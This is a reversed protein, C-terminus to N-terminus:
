RERSWPMIMAESPLASPPSTSRSAKAPGCSARASRGTMPMSRKEPPPQPAPRIRSRVNPAGAGPRAPTSTSSATSHAPPSVTPPSRPLISGRAGRIEARSTRTSRGRMQPPRVVRFRGGVIRTPQLVVITSLTGRVVLAAPVRVPALPPCDLAQVEGAREGRHPRVVSRVRGVGSRFVWPRAVVASALGAGAGRGVGWSALRLRDTVRGPCHADRLRGGLGGRAAGSGLVWRRHYQHGCRRVV